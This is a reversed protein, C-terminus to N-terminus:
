IYIDKTYGRTLYYNGSGNVTKKLTHMIFKHRLTRHNRAQKSNSRKTASIQKVQVKCFIEYMTLSENILTPGRFSKEYPKLALASGLAVPFAL